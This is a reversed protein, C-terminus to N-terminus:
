RSVLIFRHQHLQTHELIENMLSIVAREWTEGIIHNALIEWTSILEFKLRKNITESEILFNRQTM